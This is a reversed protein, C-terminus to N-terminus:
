AVAVASAEDPHLEVFDALRTIEFIQRYHESLGFAHVRCGTARARALLQVIVALGTSNIYRTSAFNLALRPAGASAREYADLLTAEADADIEGALDIVPIEGDTRVVANFRDAM